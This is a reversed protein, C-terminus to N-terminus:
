GGSGIRVRPMATTFAGLKPRALRVTAAARHAVPRAAPKPMPAPAAVKAVTAPKPASISGLTFKHTM